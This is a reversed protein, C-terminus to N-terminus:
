IVKSEMLERLETSLAGAMHDPPWPNSEQRDKDWVGTMNILEDKVLVKSNSHKAQYGHLVLLFWMWWYIDQSCKVHLSTWQNETWPIILCDKAEKFLFSEISHRVLPFVFIPILHVAQTLFVWSLSICRFSAVCAVFLCSTRSYFPKLKKHKVNILLNIHFIFLRALM